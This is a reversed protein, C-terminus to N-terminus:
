IEKGFADSMKKMDEIVECGDCVPDGLDCLFGEPERKCQVLYQNYELMLVQADMM